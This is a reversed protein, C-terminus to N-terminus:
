YLPNAVLNFVSKINMQAGPAPVANVHMNARLYMTDQLFYDKLSVDSATLILSTQGKPIGYKYAVLVEAQSPASIYLQVTDLFDFNQSPPSTLEIVMSKLGVKIVKASTTHYQELYAKSNTPVAIRPFPLGAGGAPLPFGFTYGDVPPITVQQTYPLDVSIDALDKVKKCGINFAIAALTCGLLIKKM